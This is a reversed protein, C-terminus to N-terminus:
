GILNFSNWGKEINWGFHCGRKLQFSIIKNNRDMEGDKKGESGKHPKENALLMLTVGSRLARCMFDDVGGDV